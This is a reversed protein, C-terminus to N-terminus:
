RVSTTSTMEILEDAGVTLNDGADIKAAEAPLGAPLFLMMFLLTIILIRGSKKLM